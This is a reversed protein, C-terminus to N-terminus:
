KQYINPFGIHKKYRNQWYKLYCKIVILDGIKINSTSITQEDKTITQISTAKTLQNPSIKDNNIFKKYIIRRGVEKEQQLKSKPFNYNQVKIFTRWDM